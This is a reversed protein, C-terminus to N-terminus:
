IQSEGHRAKELFSEIEKKTPLPKDYDVEKFHADDLDMYDSILAVQRRKHRHKFNRIARILARDEEPLWQPTKLKHKMFYSVM